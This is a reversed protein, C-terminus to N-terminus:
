DSAGSPQPAMFRRELPVGLFVAFEGGREAKMHPLRVAVQDWIWGETVSVNNNSGDVDFHEFIDDLCQGLEIACSTPWIQM